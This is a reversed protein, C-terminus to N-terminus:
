FNLSWRARIGLPPIGETLHTVRWVLDVRGVKFINEIGVALETYPVNGFQKTFTPLLMASNHRSSIAGYTVRGTTVLRWKLKKILPIRDFLLGEWHHEVLGTM